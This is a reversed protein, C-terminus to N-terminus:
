SNKPKHTPAVLYVEDIYLTAPRDLDLAFIILSVIRRTDMLRDSPATVLDQLSISVQNWGPNLTYSQNFRDFHHQHNSQSHTKDHVRCTITLAQQAPNYVHLILKQQTSWDGPFHDLSVGEYKSTGLEVKMSQRGARAITSDLNIHTDGVTSWRGIESAQEFNSLVPWNKIAQREDFLAAAFPLAAATLLIFAMAQLSHRTFRSLPLRGPSLFALGLLAGVGNKLLDASDMSRGVGLQMLEILVGLLFTFSVVVVCQQRFSRTALPSPATLLFYSILMFLPIHGLNWFHNRSRLKLEEDGGGMFLLTFLILMALLSFIRHIKM